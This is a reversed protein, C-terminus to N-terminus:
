CSVPSWQTGWSGNTAQFCRYYSNRPSTLLGDRTYTNVHMHGTHNLSADQWLDNEFRTLAEYSILDAEHWERAKLVLVAKYATLISVVATSELLSHVVWATGEVDLDSVTSPPNGSLGIYSLDAFHGNIHAGSPHRLGASDTPTGGNSASMDGVRLSMMGDKM